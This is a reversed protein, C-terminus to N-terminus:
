LQDTQLILKEVQDIIRYSRSALCHTIKHHLASDMYNLTYVGLRLDIAGSAGVM